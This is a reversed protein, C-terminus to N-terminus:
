APRRGGDSGGSEAEIGNDSEAKEWGPMGGSADEPPIDERPRLYVIMALSLGAIILLTGEAAYVGWNAAVFVAAADTFTHWLVAALLWGLGGRTFVQLVLLAAAIHFVLTFSRELAGLLSAYWPLSWYAQLQAQTAELAEPPVIGTLDAERYAVAQIFAFLALLGLLVAEIGGHGAGFMLGQRWTRLDRRWYRLVVYRALEEFIGASLGLAIALGVQQGLATGQMWGVQELLPVLVQSNFPLHLVRSAVFTAGGVIYLRWVLGYKRALYVGLALPLGIMLVANLLRVFEDVTGGQGM